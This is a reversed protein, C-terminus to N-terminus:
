AGSSDAEWKADIFLSQDKGYDRDGKGMKEKFIHINTMCFVGSTNLRMRDSNNFKVARVVLGTMCDYFFSM